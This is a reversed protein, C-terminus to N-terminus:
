KGLKGARRKKVPVYRYLPRRLIRVIFYPLPRYICFVFRKNPRTAQRVTHLPEEQLNNISNVRLRRLTSQQGFESPVGFLFDRQDCCSYYRNHAAPWRATSCTFTPRATGISRRERGHCLLQRASELKVSVVSMGQLAAHSKEIVRKYGM